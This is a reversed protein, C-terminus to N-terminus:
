GIQSEAVARPRLTVDESDRSMVHRVCYILLFFEAAAAAVAVVVIVVVFQRSL